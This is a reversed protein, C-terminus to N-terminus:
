AAEVVQEFLSNWACVTRSEVQRADVFPAQASGTVLDALARTWRPETFEPVQVAGFDVHGRLGDAGSVLVPRRSALAEVAVLGYPEWRSPMVVADCAALAAEPTTHGHFTIREDDGSLDELAAREPGDGFIELRVDPYPLARFAPILLDFGKQRDLQGIAGIRRVPTSPAPLGAISSLSVCPPVVSLRDATVLGTRGLWDAQSPSVAVVRDFLGYGCRLLARFRGRHAVNAAVFRESYSHEVHVLPIGRYRSRLAALGPLSGWTLTLHSVIVDAVIGSRAAALRRVPIVQHRALAAMGPNAGIFDLYRRVGGPSQDDILHAVTPM